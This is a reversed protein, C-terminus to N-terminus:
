PVPKPEPRPEPELRYLRIDDFYVVGSGSAQLNNKDGFGLSITNVDTLNVGQDVFVELNINWKRWFNIQSADPNNHYVVASGNLAVYMPVATNASDGRFWLTLTNVNQETWDRPYSLTMTAESYRFNNDYFYPMSQKGSHVIQTEVYHEGKAFNPRPRGVISGNMPIGWGDIWMNFIRDPEFDNYDEFGDVLLFDAVTFSWVRGKSITGDINNEDIRWYYPGGGWGLDEPPAYIAVSQQGQYIGTTDSANANAVSDRDSGFYVDHQSANDGPTWSLVVNYPVDTEQNAPSPTYALLPDIRIILAIEEHTLEKDYVRVDDIMGPFHRSDDDARRGISVDAGATLNYANTSGTTSRFDVSGDLWLKATPFQVPAGEAVTVAIHHWEGDNVTINGQINGGGHETRLRGNSVRFSLRTRSGGTGWTVIEGNGKTKIWATISFAHQVGNSAVIGKYGDINVYDGSGDFELAGSDYGPVWQPDGYLSGHRDHGSSDVVAGYGENNLKWWGVLNPDTVAITPFTEFSWVDGKHTATGDFEDIRWYYVTDRTLPGPVYTTEIQHPAGTANHVTDFDEGFYIYHLKSSLGATWSLTANPNIFKANDAPEPNHATALPITFSWVEGTWPSNPNLDNVEDIRWYYTAGPVLSDPWAFGPSGVIVMTGPQNGLFTGLTGEAGNNVDDFNDSFYVDHSVAAKGAMWNLNAWTHGHLAGDAPSPQIAYNSTFEIHLLPANVPEGDYAEACRIGESPNNPDDGIVIVLANNRTWDKQNVIEEIIASINPTQDKQGVATWNVPSWNVETITRPRSSIDFSNNSFTAANPSLEGWIILNVPKTGDKLEDCEFEIYANMINADEPIEIDTFRIGVLQKESPPTGADEYPMELDTSDADEMGGDWDHEENDDFSANVRSEVVIGGFVVNSSILSLVPIFPVLFFLIRRM